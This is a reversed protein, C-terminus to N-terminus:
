PFLRMAPSLANGGVPYESEDVGSGRLVLVGEQERGGEVM